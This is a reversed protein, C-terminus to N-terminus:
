GDFSVGCKFLSCPPDYPECDYCYDIDHQHSCWCAQSGCKSSVFKDTANKRHTSLHVCFSCCGPFNQCYDSVFCSVEKM